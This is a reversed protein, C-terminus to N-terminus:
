HVVQLVILVIAAIGVIAVIIGGIILPRKKNGPEEKEWTPVSRPVFAPISKTKRETAAQPPEPTPAAEYSREVVFIGTELAFNSVDGSDTEEMETPPQIRSMKTEPPFEGDEARHRHFATEDDKAANQVTRASPRNLVNKESKLYDVPIVAPAVVPTAKADAFNRWQGDHLVRGAELHALFDEESAKKDAISVWDGYDDLVLGGLVRNEIEAIRGMMKSNANEM